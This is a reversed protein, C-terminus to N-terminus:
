EEFEDEDDEWVGVKSQIETPKDVVPKDESLDTGSTLGMIAENNLLVVQALPKIYYKKM